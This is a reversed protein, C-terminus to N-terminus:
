SIWYRYYSAPLGGLFYDTVSKPLFWYVLHILYSSGKGNKLKKISVYSVVLIPLYIYLSVFIVALILPIYIIFEDIPLGMVRWQESLTSPFVYRNKKGDM